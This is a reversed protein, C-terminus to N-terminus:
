EATGDYAHDEVEVVSPARRWRALVPHRRVYMCPKTRTANWEGQEAARKARSVRRGDDDRLRLGTNATHAAPIHARCRARGPRDVPKLMRGVVRARLQM